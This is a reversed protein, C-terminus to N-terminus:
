EDNEDEEYDNKELMNHYFFPSKFYATELILRRGRVRIAHQFNWGPAPDAEGSNFL